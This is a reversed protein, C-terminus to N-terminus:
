AHRHEAERRLSATGFQEVDEKRPRLKARNRLADASPRSRYGPDPNRWGEGYQYELFAEPRAFAQVAGGAFPLLRFPRLEDDSIPMVTFGAINLSDDVIWSPMLDIEVKGYRVKIHGTSGVFCEFGDALLRCLINHREQCVSEVSDATSLYLCDFDDDHPILDGERVLGLLTGHSVLVPYGYMKDFWDKVALYAALYSKKRKQVFAPSRFTGKKTLLCGNSLAKEINLKRSGGQQVFPTEVEWFLKKGLYPIVGDDSTIKFKAGPTIRGKARKIVFRFSDKDFENHGLLRDNFLLAVRKTGEPKVGFIVLKGRGDNDDLRWEWYSGQATRWFASPLRNCVAAWLRSFLLGWQNM